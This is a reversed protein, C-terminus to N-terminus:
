EDVPAPHTGRRLESLVVGCAISVNLSEARGFRPIAATEDALGRVAVSVGHAENGFVVLTKRDASAIVDPGAADTVVVTYGSERVFPIAKELEVGEAVPIHFISGMTGRVVKPNYLDVCGSSLLIGDVGFWDCTRIITGVNGPDSVTDLAVLLSGPRGKALIGPLSVKKTQVVAAIGQAHVTDVMGAFDKESVEEITIRRKKISAALPRDGHDSLFAATAVVARIEFDSSLAERVSRTGEVLFLRHADRHKKLSLSRYLKREASSMM